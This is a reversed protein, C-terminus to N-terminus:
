LVSRSCGVVDYAAMGNLIPGMRPWGIRVQNHGDGEEGWTKSGREDKAGRPVIRLDKVKPSKPTHQTLNKQFHRPTKRHWSEAQNSRRFEANRKEATARLGM